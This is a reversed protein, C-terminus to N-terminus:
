TATAQSGPVLRDAIGDHGAHQALQAPTEGRANALGPDAGADLLMDVIEGHGYRVAMTLPTEGNVEGDLNVGSNVFRRVRDLEGKRIAALLANVGQTSTSRQPMDDIGSPLLKFFYNFVAGLIVLGLTLLIVSRDLEMAIGGPLNALVVLGGVVVVLMIRAYRTLAFLLVLGLAYLLYQRNVGALMKEPLLVAVTLLVALGLMLREMLKRM